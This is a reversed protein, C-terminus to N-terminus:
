DTSPANVNAEEQPDGATPDVAQAAGRAAERRREALWQDILLLIVGVTIAHDGFNSINSFGATLQVHVYDIVHDFRLRDIVNSLAGGTILAVGIRSFRAWEPLRPYGILFVTITILALLLFFNSAMPFMGFAAGTNHSRTIRLWEGLLPLPVWSEGLALRQVVLNKVAQDIMLVGGGIAIVLAWRSVTRSM